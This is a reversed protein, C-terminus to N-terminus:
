WPKEYSNDKKVKNSNLKYMYTNQQMNLKKLWKKEEADSMKSKSVKQEKKKDNQKQEKNKDDKKSNKNEKADKKKKNQQQKKKDDQNNKNKNKQKDKNDKNDKNKKKDKKDKKDKNQKKEQKKKKKELAKKVNELNERTDKDEKLKLSKEYAKIAQELDKQTAKKAYSNGLNSYRKANLDKSIFTARKYSEIAKDYDKEKYFANGANYFSEANDTKKAYTNYLESAKKFEKAEYAKKANDLEVFDLLGAKLSSVSFIFLSMVFVPMIKSFSKKSFSSTAILLIFLALGLPYYFLPIYKKIKESKLEKSKTKRKIENIMTKIDMDSKVSEIYVGGSKTALQSINENLKSVIINGNQKIFQGNELKIPAGKKTGIALVFVVINNEKAFEIEDSFDSKDGGDSLILLHKKNKSTNAVVELLSMFDTGKETISETNLQSLLFEVAEHDFSLPSVLYSNKAFAVIGVRENILSKLFSVAKNKAFNLRNPYIDEALMSDSIDLAIMVDSSKAKIEIEGNDIVPESLAIVILIAMMFFLANRAKITLTNASVRLKTMVEDSFFKAQVEQQTLLLIFLIFLPPLLYIFFEPHLFSM